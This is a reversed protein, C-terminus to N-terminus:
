PRVALSLALAYDITFPLIFPLRTLVSEMNQRCASAQAKYDAKLAPDSEVVSCEAFLRDLGANVIILQATSPKGSYVTLFYDMFQSISDIEYCWMM